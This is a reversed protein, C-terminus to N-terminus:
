FAPIYRINGSGDTVMLWEQITAHASTPGLATLSVSTTGNPVFANSLKIVGSPLTLTSGAPNNTGTANIIDGAGAGIHIVNSETATTCTTSQNTGLLLVSTPSTCVQGGVQQGVATVQVPSTMSFGTQSGVLVIGNASATINNGFGARYGLQVSNNALRCQECVAVAGQTTASAVDEGNVGILIISTNAGTSGLFTQGMNFGAVTASTLVKTANLSSSGISTVAFLGGTLAQNALSGTGVVTVEDPGNLITSHGGSVWANAFTTGQLDIFCGGGPICGPDSLTYTWNGNAETTGVVGAVHIPGTCCPVGVTNNVLLRVLGSGNNATGTIAYNLFGGAFDNVAGGNVYANTFTSGQLDIHTGDIVTIYWPTGFTDAEITGNIGGAFVADGTTMGSTTNLALRILGAGNNAAGTVTAQIGTGVLTNSGIGTDHLANWIFKGSNTGYFSSNHNHLSYKGSDTGFYESQFGDVEHGAANWGVATIWSANVLQGGSLGGIVTIEGGTALGTGGGLGESTQGGAGCTEYGFCSPGLSGGLFGNGALYGVRTVGNAAVSFAEFSNANSNPVYSIDFTAGSGGGTTSVQSEPEAPLTTVTTPTAVVFGAVATGSVASVAITSGGSTVIKDGLNYGSGGIAPAGASNWATVFQPAWGQFKTASLTTFAGTSGSIPIANIATAASLTSGNGSLVQANPVALGGSVAVGNIFVGTTNITGTGLNGGTPSGIVGSTATLSSFAGTGGSIPTNTITGSTIHVPGSFTCGALPCGGGPGVPGITQAMAAFPLMAALVIWRLMHM